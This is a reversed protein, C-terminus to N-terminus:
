QTTGPDECGKLAFLLLRDTAQDEFQELAPLLVLDLTTENLFWWVLPPPWLFQHEKLEEWEMHVVIPSVLFSEMSKMGASTVYHEYSVM